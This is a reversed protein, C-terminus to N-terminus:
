KKTVATIHPNIGDYWYLFAEVDVTDGINLERLAKYVDTDKGCFDSEILFTYTKDGKAFTIYIDDGESGTGNYKYLWAVEKQDPDKSAAVTLGTFTVKRNQYNAMEDTGLKDTLDVADYLKKDTGVVTVTIKDGSPASVEDEGHYSQRIGKVCVKDGVNVADYEEQTCAWRYVYYAGDADALYLSTNGYAASYEFKAQVFGEITVPADAAAAIFEAYTMVGESKTRDDVEVPAAETTIEETTADTAPTNAATTSAPTTDGSNGTKGCAAFATVVMIVALLLAFKKM